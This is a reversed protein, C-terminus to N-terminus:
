MSAAIRGLGDAVAYRGGLGPGHPPLRKADLRDAGGGALILMQVDPQLAQIRTVADLVIEHLRDRAQRAEDRVDQHQRRHVIEGTSLAAELSEFGITGRLVRSLLASVAEVAARVGPLSFLSGAVPRGRVSISVDTSYRGVDVIAVTQQLIEPRCTAAAALVGAPQAVVHVKSQPSFEALRRAVGERVVEGAGSPVGLAVRGRSM